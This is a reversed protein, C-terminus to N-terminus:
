VGTATYGQRAREQPIRRAEQRYFLISGAPVPAVTASMGRNTGEDITAPALSSVPFPESGPDGASPSPRTIGTFLRSTADGGNERMNTRRCGSEGVHMESAPSLVPGVRRAPFVQLPAPPRMGPPRALIPGSVAATVLKLIRQARM